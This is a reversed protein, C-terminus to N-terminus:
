SASALLPMLLVGDREVNRWLTRKEVEQREWENRSQFHLNFIVDHELSVRSAVRRMEWKLDPLLKEVVLLVDIDSDSTFDGRAVSGFLIASLIERPYKEQLRRMFEQTAKRQQPTSKESWKTKM